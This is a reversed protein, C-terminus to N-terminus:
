FFFCFGTLAWPEREDSPAECSRVFAGLSLIWVGPGPLHVTRFSEQQRGESWGKAVRPPPACASPLVASHGLPQSPLYSQGWRALALLHVHPSLLPGPAM